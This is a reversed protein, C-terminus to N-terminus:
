DKAITLIGINQVKAQSLIKSCENVTSGTTYIDDIILIKKNAIKNANQMKYTGQVNTIRQEKNLTSQPLINKTKILINKEVKIKLTKGIEKAILLSQNYGRQKQRKTSLPVPIIIDYTKINEVIKKNKLLFKVFTKYLYTKDQFKYNLILKRIIGQYMFIYM